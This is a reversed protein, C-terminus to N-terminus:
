KLILERVEGINKALRQGAQWYTETLVALNLSFPSDGRFITFDFDAQTFVGLDIAETNARLEAEGLKQFFGAFTDASVKCVHQITALARDARQALKKAYA